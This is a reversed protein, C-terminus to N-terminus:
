EGYPQMWMLSAGSFKMLRLCRRIALYVSVGLVETYLKMAWGEMGEEWNRLNWFGIKKTDPAKTWTGVPWKFRRKTVDIFGAAEILEPMKEAIEFTKGIREGIQVASKSWEDLVSGPALTGDDSKMHVSWEMQELYGGPKLAKFIQAYLAPWDSISGFLGRIHIFDFHDEPLDVWEATVDDQIFEVNTPLPGRGAPSIDIGTVKANPFKDAM